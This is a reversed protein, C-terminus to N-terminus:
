QLKHPVGSPDTPPWLALRLDAPSPVVYLLWYAAVLVHAYYPEVASIEGWIGAQAALVAVAIGVLLPALAIVRLLRTSPLSGFDLHLKFPIWPHVHVSYSRGFRAVALHTCEHLLMVVGAVATYVAVAQLWDM